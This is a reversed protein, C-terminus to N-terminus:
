LVTRSCESARMRLQRVVKRWLVLVRRGHHAVRSVVHGLLVAGEVRGEDAVTVVNRIPSNGLSWVPRLSRVHGQLRTVRRQCPSVVRVYTLAGSPALSNAPIPHRVCGTCTPTFVDTCHRMHAFKARVFQWMPTSTCMSHQWVRHSCAFVFWNGTTFICSSILQALSM